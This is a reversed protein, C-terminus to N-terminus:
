SWKGNKWSNGMSGSFDGIFYVDVPQPLYKRTVARGSVSFEPKLNVDEYAIWSTYKDDSVVFDSFPALEGSAKYVVMKTSVNVPICVAVDVDDTNDVVYRDVLYRAYKVNNEEDERPSAILAPEYRQRKWYGPIRM